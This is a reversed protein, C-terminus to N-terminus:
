HKRTKRRRSRKRKGQTKRKEQTKRKRQTRRGGLYEDFIKGIKEPISKKRNREASEIARKLISDFSSRSNYELEGALNVFDNILQKRFKEVDSKKTLGVGMKKSYEHILYTVLEDIIEKDKTKEKDLFYGVKGETANYEVKGKTANHEHETVILDLGDYSHMKRLLNILHTPPPNKAREQYFKTLIEINREENYETGSGSGNGNGKGKKNGNGSGNGKGKENGNGKKNENGKENGKENGSGSGCECECGNGNKNKNKNNETSM